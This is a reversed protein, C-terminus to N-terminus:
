RFTSCPMAEDNPPFPVGNAPFPAPPHAQETELVDHLRVRRRHGLGDGVPGLHGALVLADLLPQLGLHERDGAALVQPEARGGGRGVQVDAHGPLLADVRLGLGLGDGRDDLVGLAVELRRLLLELLGDGVGLGVAHLHGAGSVDQEVDAGEGLLLAVVVVVVRVVLLGPVLGGALPRPLDRDEQLLRGGGVLPGGELQAAGGLDAVREVLEVALRDAAAVLGVAPAGGFERGPELVALGEARLLEGLEVVQHLGVGAAGDVALRQEVREAGLAGQQEGVLQLEPEVVAVALELALVALELGVEGVGDGAGGPVRVRLEVLVEALAELFGADLVDVGAVEAALGFRDVAVLGEGGQELVAVGPVALLEQVVEAGVDEGGLAGVLVAPGRM